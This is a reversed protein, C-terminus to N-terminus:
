SSNVLNLKSNENIQTEIKKTSQNRMQLYRLILFVFGTHNKIIAVARFNFETWNNRTKTKSLLFIKRTENTRFNNRTTNKKKETPTSTTITVDYQSSIGCDNLSSSYSSSFTTTTAATTRAPPKENTWMQFWEVTKTTPADHGGGVSVAVFISGVAM